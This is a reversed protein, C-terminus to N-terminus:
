EQRTTTKPDTPVDTVDEAKPTPLQPDDGSGEDDGSGGLHGDFEKIAEDREAATQNPDADLGKSHAAPDVTTDVSKESM